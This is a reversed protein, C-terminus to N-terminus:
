DALPLVPTVTAAHAPATLALLAFAAAAICFLEKTM